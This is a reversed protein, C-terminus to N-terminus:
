LGEDLDNVENTMEEDDRVIDLQGTLIYKQSTYQVQGHLLFDRIREQIGKEKTTYVEIGLNECRELLQPMLKRLDFWDRAVRGYYDETDTITIFLRKLTGQLTLQNLLTILTTQRNGWVRKSEFYDLLPKSDLVIRVDELTSPLPEDHEFFIPPAQLTRIGTLRNLLLKSVGSRMNEEQFEDDDDDMLIDLDLGEDPYEIRANVLHPMPSMGEEGGSLYSVWTMAHSIDCGEEFRVFLNQLAYDAKPAQLWRLHNSPVLRRPIELVITKLSAPPSNDVLYSSLPDNGDTRNPGNMLDDYNRFDDDTIYAGSWGRIHLYKLKKLKPLEQCVQSFYPLYRRSFNNQDRRFRTADCLLALGVLDTLCGIAKLVDKVGRCDFREQRCARDCDDEGHQVLYNMEEVLAEAEEVDIKAIKRIPPTTRSAISRVNAESDSEDDGDSCEKLEEEEEGELDSTSLEPQDNVEVSLFRLNPLRRLLQALLQWHSRREGVAPLYEKLFYSSVKNNIYWLDTVWSGCYPGDMFWKMRVPSRIRIRKRLVHQVDRTWTRHVLCMSLLDNRRPNSRVGHENPNRTALEDFFHGMLNDSIFSAVLYAIIPSLAIVHSYRRPIILDIALSSLTEANIGHM